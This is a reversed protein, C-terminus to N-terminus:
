QTPGGRPGRQQCQDATLSSSRGSHSQYSTHACRLHVCYPETPHTSGRGFQLSTTLKLLPIPHIVWLRLPLTSVMPTSRLTGLWRWFSEEGGQHELFHLGPARLPTVDVLGEPGRVVSHAHVMHSPGAGPWLLWGRVVEYGPHESVWRAANAHCKNFDDEAYPIPMHPVVVAASARAVLAGFYSEISAPLTM